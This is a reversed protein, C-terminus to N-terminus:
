VNHLRMLYNLCDENNSIKKETKLKEWASYMLKDVFINIPIKRDIDSEDIISTRGARPDGRFQKDSEDFSDYEQFSITDDIIEINPIDIIKLELPTFDISEIFDEYSKQSIVGYQSSAQLVLKKAERKNAAEIEIVPLEDITYGEKELEELAKKRGAGDIIYNQWTYLPFSFDNSLIAQKLKSVDRNSAEKLSNFDYTKLVELSIYKLNFNKNKIKRTM